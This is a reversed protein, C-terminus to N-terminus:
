AYRFPVDIDDGCAALGTDTIQGENELSSVRRSLLVPDPGLISCAATLM